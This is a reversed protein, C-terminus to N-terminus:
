PLAINQLLIVKLKIADVDIKVLSKVLKKARSYDKVNLGVEAVIVIDNELNRNFLKKM